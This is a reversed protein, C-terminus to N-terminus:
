IHILSLTYGAEDFAAKPYWVLSKGNFRHFVGAEMAGDPGEITAMDRWSQNYQEALWADDLFTSVDVVYGQRVFTALLGPQPFDAIDPADGAEVRVGISGEFEKGGIYQVDIGTAEEFAVLGQEFKVTDADAHPRVLGHLGHGIGFRGLYGPGVRQGVLIGAPQGAVVNVRGRGAHPSQSWGQLFSSRRVFSLKRRSRSSFYWSYAAAPKM